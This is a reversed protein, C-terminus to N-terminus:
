NFWYSVKLVLARKKSDMSEPFYNDSYVIFFDSVPKYRWQLRANINLNDAQENYQVFTTFFLKETFTVDLKTGVLWFKTREWPQPLILDNYTFIVSLYGYPQIRYNLNGSLFCRNGNFFGGYGSQFGYKFLKRNDSTFLVSVEPWEYKEGPTLYYIGINTPDYEKKLMVFSYNTKLELHARSKFHFIYNANMKRDTLQFNGPQYYDDMEIFIGHYELLGKKPYLKITVRPNLHLFDNRPTYGAESSFDKGVYYESFELMFTKRSYLLNLGHSFEESSRLSPTFSKLGFLKGTLFDNPSALNFELGALRNYNNGQWDAPVDMQQKNVFIAGINSRAFVKKELSSVFFNRSLYDGAKDTQMDMVGLRWDDGVKGSLRFGATVPADIGIRRSFFPRIDKTGYSGFLDSNELFFQRKEPFYLEYRELNTVQDDVEAQSFDPNYTLDLNLSSSLGVKADFGFDKRYKTTEGNEIDRSASGFLYPILSLKLVSKPLPDQWKLQGAYALTATPFQRPVPAWASKENLKLDHRTFQVNWRDSGTKYRVSKFPIRFESVWRDSYNKTKSEWKSDWIQNVVKGDNVTGDRIAGAANVGFCYGNTLDNYTDLYLGINDNNLYEFDRRLSEVPRMGPLTDYVIFAVYFAKNDYTLMVESRAVSYGTDYPLVMHFNTAKEAKLWDDEDAIGDLIIDGTRKKVNIIFNNNVITKINVNDKKFRTSDKRTIEVGTNVAKLVAPLLIISTIFLYLKTRISIKFYERLRFVSSRLNNNIIVEPKQNGDGSKWSSNMQYHNTAM